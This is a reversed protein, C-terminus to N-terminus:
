RGGEGPYVFARKKVRKERGGVRGKSAAEHSIPGKCIHFLECQDEELGEGKQFSEKKRQRVLRKEESFDPICTKGDILYQSKWVKKKGQPPSEGV